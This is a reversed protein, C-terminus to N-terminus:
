VSDLTGDPGSPAIWEPSVELYIIREKEMTEALEDAVARWLQRDDAVPGRVATLARIWPTWRGLPSHLRFTGAWCIRGSTRFFKIISGPGGWQPLQFPHATDQSDFFDELERCLIPSLNNIPFSELAM